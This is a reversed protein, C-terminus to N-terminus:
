ALLQELKSEVDIRHAKLEASATETLLEDVLHRGLKASLRIGLESYEGTATAIRNLRPSWLLECQDFTVRLYAINPKAEEIFELTEGLTGQGWAGPDEENDESLQLFAAQEDNVPQGLIAVAKQMSTQLDDSSSWMVSLHDAVTEAQLYEGNGIVVLEAPHHVRPGYDEKFM